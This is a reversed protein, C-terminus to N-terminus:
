ESSGDLGSDQVTTRQIRKQYPLALGYGAPRQGRERQKQIAEHGRDFQDRNVQPNEAVIKDIDLSGLM